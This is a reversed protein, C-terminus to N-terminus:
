WIIRIDIGKWYKVDAESKFGGNEYSESIFLYVYSVPDPPMKVEEADRKLTEIQSTLLYEMWQLAGIQLSTLMTEIAVSKVAIKLQEDSDTLKHAQGLM